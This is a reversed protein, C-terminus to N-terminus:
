FPLANNVIPFLINSTRLVSPRHPCSSSSHRGRVPVESVSRTFTTPLRHIVIACSQDAQRVKPSVLVTAATLSIHHYTYSLPSPLGSFSLFMIDVEFIQENVQSGHSIFQKTSRSAWCRSRCIVLCRPKLM